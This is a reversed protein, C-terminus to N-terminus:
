PALWNELALGAIGAFDPEDDTVLTANVALAHAAILHDFDRTKIRGVQAVIRGYADAAAADFPLVALNQILLRHRERRLLDASPAILGRQLEALCLASIAITGAHLAFKRQVSATGDRAHIFINTDILYAM